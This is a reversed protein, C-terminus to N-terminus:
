TLRKIPKQLKANSNKLRVYTEYADEHIVNLIQKQSNRALKNFDASKILIKLKNLTMKNINIAPQRGKINVSSYTGGTENQKHTQGTRADMRELKPINRKINDLKHLLSDTVLMRVDIPVLPDTRYFRITNDIIRLRRLISPGITTFRRETAYKYLFNKDQQMKKLKEKLIENKSIQTSM